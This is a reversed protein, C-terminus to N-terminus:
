RGAPHRVWAATDKLAERSAELTYSPEKLTGLGHRLMLWGAILELAGTILAGAWYNGGVLAGIAAVLLVTLAVAAVVAIALALGMWVSGRVGTRVSEQLELKALRVEDGALRKSDNTLRRILDPIGTDPDVITSPHAAM